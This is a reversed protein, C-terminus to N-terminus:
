YLDSYNNPYKTIKLDAKLINLHLTELLSFNDKELKEYALDFVTKVNLESLKTTTIININEQLEEGTTNTLSFTNINSITFFNEVPKVYFLIHFGYESEVLGSIDGLNGEGNNYLERAAATFTEVMKSDETGVIYDYDQNKNGTDENYKYMYDNFINIKEQGDKGILESSFDSLLDEVTYDAMEEGYLKVKTSNVIIQRYNEYDANTIAGNNLATELKELATTQEDSFKVLIHSVYFYEGLSSDSVLYNIDSRSSLIDTKYTELNTSYKTYSSKIKNELYSFIDNVSISSYGTETQIYNAYLSLYKNDQMNKNVRTIERAWVESDVTSLNQGEEYEKLSAIYRKQAEKLVDNGDIKENIADVFTSIYDETEDYTLPKQTDDENNFVSIKWENETTDYVIEAKHDYLEYETIEEEDTTLESPIQLNWDKIVNEEYDSLLSIMGDYTNQWIDNKDNDTLAIDGATMLNGVEKLMVRQNILYDVLYEIAKEGTYGSESLTDGYRNYAEVLDKKTLTITNSESTESSYIITAVTQNLYKTYDLAFLNCGSLALSICFVCVLLLSLRKKM